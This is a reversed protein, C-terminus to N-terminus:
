PNFMDPTYYGLIANAMDIQTQVGPYEADIELVVHFQNIAKGWEQRKYFIKALIFHFDADEPYKLIAANAMREAEELQNSDYLRIIEDVEKKM